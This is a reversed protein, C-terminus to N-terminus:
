RGGRPSPRRPPRASRCPRQEARGRGGARHGILVLKALEGIAVPDRKGVRDPREADIEVVREFRARLEFARSGIELEMDLLAGDELREVQGEPRHEAGEADLAMADAPRALRRM